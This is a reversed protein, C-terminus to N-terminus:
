REELFARSMELSLLGRVRQIIKDGSEGAEIHSRWDWKKDKASSLTLSYELLALGAHLDEKDSSECKTVAAMMDILTSRDFVRPQDRSLLPIPAAILLARYEAPLYPFRFLASIHRAASERDEAEMNVLFSALVACPALCERVVPPMPYEFNDGLANATLIDSPPEQTVLMSEFLKWCQSVIANTDEAEAFRVLADYYCQQSAHSMGVARYLQAATKHLDLSMATTIAWEFDDPSTIKMRPLVEGIIQIAEQTGMGKLIEIGIVFLKESALCSKAMSVQLWELVSQGQTLSIYERLLGRLSCFQTTIAAVSVDLTELRQIAKLYNGSIVDGCAVDWTVTSDPGIYTSVKEYYEPIRSRTPDHYKLLAGVAEFWTQSGEVIANIDGSMIGFLQQLEACMAPDSIEGAKHRAEICTNRWQRFSYVGHDPTPYSKFLQIAIEFCEKVDLAMEAAVSERLIAVAANEYGRLATQRLHEWFAPHSTPPNTRMIDDVDAQDMSPPEVHNVWELFENTINHLDSPMFCMIQFLMVINLAEQIELELEEDLTDRYEHLYDSFEIMLENAAIEWSRQERLEDKARALRSSLDFLQMVLEVYSPGRYHPPIGCQYVQREKDDLVKENGGTKNVRQAVWGVGDESVPNLQFNLTRNSEHWTPIGGEPIPADEFAFEAAEESVDSLEEEGSNEDSPPSQSGFSMGNSNGQGFISGSFPMANSSFLNETAKPPVNGKGSDDWPKKESGTNMSGFATGSANSFLGLSPLEDKGPGTQDNLPPLQANNGGFLPQAQSGSNSVPLQFLGNKNNNSGFLLENNNSGFNINSGFLTPKSEPNDEKKDGSGSSNSPFQPSSM